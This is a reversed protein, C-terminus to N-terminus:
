YTDIVYESTAQIRCDSFGAVYSQARSCAKGGEEKRGEFMKEKQRLSVCALQFIIALAKRM